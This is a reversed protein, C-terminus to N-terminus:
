KPWEQMTALYQAHEISRRYANTAAQRLAVVKESTGHVSILATLYNLPVLPACSALLPAIQASNEATLEVVLFPVAKKGYYQITAQDNEQIARTIEQRLYSNIHTLASMVLLVYEGGNGIALMREMTHEARNREYRGVQTYDVAASLALAENFKRTRIRERVVISREFHEDVLVEHRAAFRRLALSTRASVDVLYGTLGTLFGWL